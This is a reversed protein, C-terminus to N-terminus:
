AETAADVADRWAFPAFRSPTLAGEPTLHSAPAFAGAPGTAVPTNPLNSRLGARTAQTGHNPRHHSAGDGACPRRWRRMPSPLSMSAVVGATRGGPNAAPTINARGYRRCPRQREQTHRHAPHARGQRGGPCGMPGRAPSGLLAPGLNRGRPAMGPGTAAARESVIRPRADRHGAVVLSRQKGTALSATGTPLRTRVTGGGAPPTQIRGPCRCAPGASV